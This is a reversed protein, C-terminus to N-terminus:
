NLNMWGALIEDRPTPLTRLDSGNPRILMLEYGEEASTTSTFGIWEGDPSWIPHFQYSSSHVLAKMMGTAINIVCIDADVAADPQHSCETALDTAQPSWTPWQVWTYESDTSLRHLTESCTSPAGLCDTSITYIQPSTWRDSTTGAFAILKGNPSWSPREVRRIRLPISYSSGSSIDAVELGHPLETPNESFYIYVMRKGDPSWSPTTGRPLDELAVVQQFPHELIGIRNTQQTFALRRNVGDWVADSTHALPIYTELRGGENRVALGDFKGFRSWTLLYQGRDLADLQIPTPGVSPTLTEFYPSPTMAFSPTPEVVISTSPESTNPEQPTSVYTAGTCSALGFAVLLSILRSPEQAPRAISSRIHDNAAYAASAKRTM